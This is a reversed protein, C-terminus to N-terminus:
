AKTGVVIVAPVPVRVIGGEAYVALGREIAADIRQRDEPKQALLLMSARVTGKEIFEIVRALPWELIATMDTCVVDTFGAAQMTRESEAREALRFPPPAPPLGVDMNGNARVVEPVIRYLPSVEPGCWTTFAYRGGRKLVRSAEAIAKDPDPLHYLGFNCIVRDFSADQFALAEADGVRFDVPMGKANAVTIMEEAIDIATVLAGHAVAAKAVLGTGCCIDLLKQGRAIGAANLLPEIGYNTIIATINDYTIARENWGAEEVGKFTPAGGM